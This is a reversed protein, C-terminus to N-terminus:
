SLGKVRFMSSSSDLDKGAQGLIALVGLAESTTWSARTGVGM